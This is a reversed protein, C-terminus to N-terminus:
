KELLLRCVLHFQSQLESTHEESRCSAPTTPRFFRWASRAACDRQGCPRRSAGAPRRPRATRISRQAISSRSEARFRKRERTSTIWQGCEAKRESGTDEFCLSIGGRTSYESVLCPSLM